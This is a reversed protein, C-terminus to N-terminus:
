TSCLQVRIEVEGLADDECGMRDCLKHWNCQVQGQILHAVPLEVKGMFLDEELSCEDHGFVQVVLKEQRDLDLRVGYQWEPAASPTHPESHNEHDGLRVLIYPGLSARAGQIGQGRLVDVQVSLGGATVEVPTVQDSLELESGTPAAELTYPTHGVTEKNESSPMWELRVEIEGLGDGLAYWQQTAQNLMLKNVAIEVQGGFVQFGSCWGGMHKDIVQVRVPSTVHYDVMLAEEWCPSTTGEVMGTQTCHKGHTVECYASTTGKYGAPYIGRAQMITVLLRTDKYKTGDRLTYTLQVEGYQTDPQRSRGKHLKFWGTCPIDEVMDRGPFALEGLVEDGLLSTNGDYDMLTVTLSNPLHYPLVYFENWTPNLNQEVVRTECKFHQGTTIVAYPDSQSRGTIAWDLAMLNRAGHVMVEVVRNRFEPVEECSAKLRIEGRSQLDKFTQSKPRKLASWTELHEGKGLSDLSLEVVGHLSDSLGCVRSTSYVEVKLKELGFYPFSFTEDWTQSGETALAAQSPRKNLNYWPTHTDTAGLEPKSDPSTLVEERGYSVRCYVDSTSTVGRLGRAECVTFTMFLNDSQKILGRMRELRRRSLAGRLGSQVTCAAKNFALEQLEKKRRTWEEFPLPDIGSTHLVMIYLLKQYPVGMNTV